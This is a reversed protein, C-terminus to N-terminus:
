GLHHAAAQRLAAIADQGGTWELLRRAKGVDYVAHRTLLNVVFPTVMPPRKARFLRFGAELAVAAAMAVGRPVSLRPPRLGSAACLAAVVERFTPPPSAAVNFAEGAAESREACRLVVDAVDRADVCNFPANGGDIYTVQRNRLQGLLRPLFQRDHAGFIVPPRVAAVELGLERGREFALRESEGKTDEYPRGFAHLGYEESIVGREPRGYVAVSSLQVFRRAGGRAAAEVCVRTGGVNVRRFDELSGWDGVRAATHVFADAGRALEELVTPSGLDGRVLRVGAQELLHARSPDRVLARVEFGRARAALAIECGTGGTGGTLAILM